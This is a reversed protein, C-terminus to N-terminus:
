FWGAKSLESFLFADVDSGKPISMYAQLKDETVSGNPNNTTRWVEYIVGINGCAETRQEVVRFPKIMNTGM